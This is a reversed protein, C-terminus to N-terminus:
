SHFFVGGSVVNQVLQGLVRVEVFSSWTDESLRSDDIVGCSLKRGTPWQASKHSDVPTHIRAILFALQLARPENFTYFNHTNARQCM